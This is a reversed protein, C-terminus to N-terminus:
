KTAERLYRNFKEKWLALDYWCCGACAREDAKSTGAWKENGEYFWKIGFFDGREGLSVCRKCYREKQLNTQNTLLQFKAKIDDDSMSMDNITEGMVWRSSPFKHDIVLESAEHVSDFCADKLPLVQKIRKKLRESIFSRKENDAAQRPLRLLLDFFQKGGCTQCDAYITAIFYGMQKLSKIRAAPQPNVVPVPGCKRCLWKTLDDKGDLAEFVARTAYSHKNNWFNRQENQWTSHKGPDIAEYCYILWKKVDEDTLPIDTGQYKSKIPICGYWVKTHYRFTVHLYYDSMGRIQFISGTRVDPSIKTNEFEYSM